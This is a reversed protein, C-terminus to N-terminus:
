ENAHFKFLHKEKDDINGDDLFKLKRIDLKSIDIKGNGRTGSGGLYDKKLIQFGLDLTELLKSENDNEYIDMIIDIGFVAGRTVREMHRPNAEGTLRNITNEAKDETDVDALAYSDRVILRSPIKQVNKKFNASGFLQLTEGKDEKLEKFGKQRAILARLKGKLSSGPIYPVRKEGQKIKIVENDLGGIDLEIESGGIHLGTEVTLKGTIHLKHLLKAM